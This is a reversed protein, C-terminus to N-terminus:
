EQLTAATFTLPDLASTDLLVMDVWAGGGLRGPGTRSKSLVETVFLLATSPQFAGLVPPAAEPYVTM